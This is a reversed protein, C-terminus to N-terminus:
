KSIEVPAFHAGIFRSLAPRDRFAETGGSSTTSFAGIVNAFTLCTRLDAGRLWQHLFGANFSDGAGVPDVVQVHVCPVSVRESGRVAMAGEAGLKVVVLPVRAALSDVADEFNEIRAIKCAERRNPLLIDVYQLVEHLPEAWTDNPDDNTDLSTTLGAEKMRRFLEPLKDLMARHLYLSSLHFHRASALYELDLEDFRLESITGFYTLQHRDHEHQLIITLGSDRGRASVIRSLDAGSEQVRSLADRGLSDDGAKTIFGVKTGLVALNHALIASSSGLSARFGTGILERETPMERPLGYLIFDLNIEGVISIDFRPM